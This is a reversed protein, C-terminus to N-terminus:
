NYIVRNDENQTRLLTKPAVVIPGFHAFEGSELRPGFASLCDDDLRKRLHFVTSVVRYM